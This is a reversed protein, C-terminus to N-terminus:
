DRHDEYPPETGKCKQCIREGPDFCHPCKEEKCQQCEIVQAVFGIGRFGKAACEECLWPPKGDEDVLDDLSGPPKETM